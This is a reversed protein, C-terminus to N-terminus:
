GKIFRSSYNGNVTKIEIFYAGNEFVSIDINKEGSIDTLILKGDASFIKVEQIQESLEITIQKSAPNPYVGVESVTTENIGVQWNVVTVDVITPTNSWHSSDRATFSFNDSGSFGTTPIYYLLDMETTLVTDGVALVTGNLDLTGNAPLTTVRMMTLGDNDNDSFNTTFDTAAFYVSDDKFITKTMDAMNPKQNVYLSMILHMDPFGVSAVTTLDNIVCGTAVLYTSNSEPSTNSAPYFTIAGNLPLRFESALSDGPLAYGQDFPIFMLYPGATPIIAATDDSILTLNVLNASGVHTYVAGVVNYAGGTTTECGVQMRVFFATDTINAYNDLDYLQFFSNESVLFGGSNCTVSNAANIVVVPNNTIRTQGFVNSGAFFICLAYLLKKKM